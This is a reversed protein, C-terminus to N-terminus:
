NSAKAPPPADAAKESGCCGPEAPKASVPKAPAESCSDPCIAVYAAGLASVLQARAAILKHANQANASLGAVFTADNAKPFAAGFAEIADHALGLEQYMAFHAPALKNPSHAPVLKELTEIAAGLHKRDVGPKNAAEM